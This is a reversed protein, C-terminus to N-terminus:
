HSILVNEDSFPDSAPQTSTAENAEIAASDSSVEISTTAPIPEVYILRGSDRSSSANKPPGPDRAKSAVIPFVPVFEGESNLLISETAVLQRKKSGVILFAKGSPLAVRVGALRSGSLILRGASMEIRANGVLIDVQGSSPPLRFQGEGWAWVVAQSSVSFSARGDWMLPESANSSVFIDFPGQFVLARGAPIGRREGPMFPFGELRSGSGSCSVTVFEHRNLIGRQVESQSLILIHLVGALLLMVLASPVLYRWGLGPFSRSSPAPAAAAAPVPLIKEGPLRRLVKERIQCSSQIVELVEKLSKERERTEHIVIKCESCASLHQSFEAVERPPLEGDLYAYATEERNCSM